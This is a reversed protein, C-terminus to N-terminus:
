NKKRKMGSAEKEKQVQKYNKVYEKLVKIDDTKKAKRMFSRLFRVDKIKEIAKYLQLGKDSFNIEMDLQISMLLGERIGKELGERKGKELGEERFRERLMKEFNTIYPMRKKEEYKKLKKEFYNELEAPLVLMWSIFHFLNYIQNRNYGRDYLLKILEIKWHLRGRPNKRTEIAKLHALVVLSFVNKNQKLNDSRDTYDILKCIYYEFTLITHWSKLELKSPKWNKRNDTLIAISSIPNGYKEYVRLYYILMRKTFDKEYSGQIEIHVFVIKSVGNKLRLRILKDLIKQNGKKDGILKQFEKDLFEPKKKWDINQYFEPLFFFIFDKFYAELIAKWPIDQELKRMM